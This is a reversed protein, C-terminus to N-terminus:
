SERFLRKSTTPSPPKSSKEALKRLDARSSTERSFPWAKWSREGQWVAEYALTRLANVPFAGQEAKLDQLSVV